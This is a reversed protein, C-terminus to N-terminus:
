SAMLSVVNFVPIDFKMLTSIKQEEFYVMLFILLYIM